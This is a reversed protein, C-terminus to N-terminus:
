RLREASIGRSSFLSGAISGQGGSAGQRAFNSAAMAGQLLGLPLFRGIAQGRQRGFHVSAGATHFLRAAPECNAPRRPRLLALGKLLEGRKGTGNSSATSARLWRWASSRIATPRRRRCRESSTAPERGRAAALTAARRDGRPGPAPQRRPRAPRAIRRRRSHGSHQKSRGASPLSSSSKAQVVHGANEACSSRNPRSVSRAARSSIM